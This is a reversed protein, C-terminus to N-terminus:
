GISKTAILSIGTGCVNECIVDGSAIPACLSLGAAKRAVDGAVARPVPASTRYCVPELCGRACVAGCVIRVPNTPEAQAYNRARICM